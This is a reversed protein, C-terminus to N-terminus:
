KRNSSTRGTSVAYVPKGDLLYGTDDAHLFAPPRRSDLVMNDVQEKSLGTAAIGPINPANNQTNMHAVIGNLSATGFITLGLLADLLLEDQKGLPNSALLALAEREVADEAM